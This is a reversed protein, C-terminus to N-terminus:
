FMSSLIIITACLGLTCVFGLLTFLSMVGYMMVSHMDYKEDLARYIRKIHLM